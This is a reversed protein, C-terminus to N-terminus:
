QVTFPVDGFQPELAKRTRIELITTQTGEAKWESIQRRLEVSLMTPTLINVGEAM